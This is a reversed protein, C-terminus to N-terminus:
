KVLVEVECIGNFYLKVTLQRTTVMWMEDCAEVALLLANNFWSWISSACASSKFNITRLSNLRLYM